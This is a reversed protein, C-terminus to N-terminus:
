GLSGYAKNPQNQLENLISDSVKIDYEVDNPNIEICNITQKCYTGRPEDIVADIIRLRTDNSMILIDRPKVLYNVDTWVSRSNVESEGGDGIRVAKNKVSTAVYILVPDAFGDRRGTGKCDQCNSRTVRGITTDFCECRPALHKVSLLAAPRGWGKLYLSNRRAIERGTPDVVNNGITIPGIIAEDGDIGDIELQYFLDRQLSNSPANEDLFKETRSVTGLIQRTGFGDTRVVRITLWNETNIKWTLLVKHRSIPWTNFDTIYPKKAM